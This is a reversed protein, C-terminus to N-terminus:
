EVRGGTQRSFALDTISHPAKWCLSHPGAPTGGDSLWGFVCLGKWEGPRGSPVAALSMHAGGQEGGGRGRRIERRLTHPQRSPRDTEM